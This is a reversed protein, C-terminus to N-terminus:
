RVFYYLTKCSLTMETRPFFTSRQARNSWNADMPTHTKGNGMRLLSWTKNMIIRATTAGSEQPVLLRIRNSLKLHVLSIEEFFFFLHVLSTVTYTTLYQTCGHLLWYLDNWGKMLERSWTFFLAPVRGCPRVAPLGAVIFRAWESRDIRGFEVFRLALWDSLSLTHEVSKPVFALGDLLSWWLFTPGQRRTRSSFLENAELRCIILLHLLRLCCGLFQDDSAWQLWHTLTRCDEPNTSCGSLHEVLAATGFGHACV